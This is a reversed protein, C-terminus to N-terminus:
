FNNTAAAWALVGFFGAALLAVTACVARASGVSKTGVMEMWKKGSEGTIFSTPAFLFALSMGLIYGAGGLLLPSLLATKVDKRTEPDSFLLVLVGIGAILGLAAFGYSLVAIM